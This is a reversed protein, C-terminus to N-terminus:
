SRNKKLSSALHQIVTAYYLKVTKKRLSKILQLNVEKVTRYKNWQTGPLIYSFFLM